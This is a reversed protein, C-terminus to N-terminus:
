SGATVAISSRIIAEALMAASGTFVAVSLKTVSIALNGAVAAILATRNENSMSPSLRVGLAVQAFECASGDLM